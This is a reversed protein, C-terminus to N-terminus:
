TVDSSSSAVIDTVASLGLELATQV